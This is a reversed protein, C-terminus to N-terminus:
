DEIIKEDEVGCINLRKIGITKGTKSDVEFICGNFQCNIDSSLKSDDDLEELYRKSEFDLDYGITSNVPGCMGIDTIFGLKNYLIKDDATQVHTHTGYVISLKDKFYYAFAGKENCYEGHYDVIRIKIDDNINSLAKEIQKFGNLIGGLRKGLVNSVFIKQGKCEFIRFGNNFTNNDYNIPVILREDSIDYIGNNSYTHNGMTVADVGSNIIRYFLEKNIGRAKVTNEGNAIVFDINYKTKLSQLINELMKVANEGVIDGIALIKM